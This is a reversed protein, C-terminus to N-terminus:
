RARPVAARGRGARVHQGEAQVGHLRQAGPDLAQARQPLASLLDLLQQKSIPCGRLEFDVFVHAAIPTSEKLTSIYSPNAYVASVYHKVDSFNRLAQIGGATACAGISVLVKSTGGSPTSGSPTTRRRSRGKSWRSTTRARAARRADGGPVDRHGGRRRHVAARGRLRAARAPVRRVLRVELGRAEAQATRAMTVGGADRAAAQDPRLPLGPRGQVRVGSRVPLPRVAGIGCKMNREMSLYISTPPVGREELKIATLRM